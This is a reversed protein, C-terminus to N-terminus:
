PVQWPLGAAQLVAAAFSNTLRLAPQQKGHLTLTVTGCLAPGEAVALPPGGPRARFTLRLANGFPIPCAAVGVTSLPLGNVLAALRRVVPEGTVTVPSPLRPHQDTVPVEALTVVRATPPVFTSLPRAPQWAIQAPTV